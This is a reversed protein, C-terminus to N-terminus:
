GWDCLRNVYDATGDRLWGDLQAQEKLQQGRPLPIVFFDCSFDTLATMDGWLKESQAVPFVDEQGNGWRKKVDKLTIYTPMQEALERVCCEVKEQDNLDERSLGMQNLLHDINIWTTLSNYYTLKFEDEERPLALGEVLRPYGNVRALGGGRDDLRRQIVEVSLCNGNEIHTGLIGPDVNAGLTDINHLMLYKLSPREVLLDRLTGNRLLNPVEYWHGVPHLCQMPLNDTYDSGPGMQQAWKLLATRASSRVKQQQEDLVQQQTEQWTFHLDRTMPITRLGVYRSPSLIVRGPYHYNDNAALHEEIPAHTMYGTTFIHPITCESSAFEKSIQKSKALHLELFSRHRGSLQAFPHLGKVVGAGGTWRSGVGAALTVVAVEGNAISAKGTAVIASDIEGRLDIVDEPEVDRISTNLPLRNQAIGFRGSQLDTQIQEHMERDFGLREMLEQLTETKKESDPPCPLISAVLKKLTQADGNNRFQSGLEELERRALSSLEHTERKLWGPVQLAYYEAPMRAQDDSLMESWSGRDNIKFDYVVPDMAFPLRNQMRNKTALMTEQLWKSAEAKVAPDFIFGM